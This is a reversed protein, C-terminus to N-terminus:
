RAEVPFCPQPALRACASPRRPVAKSRGSRCGPSRARRPRLLSTARRSRKGSLKRTCAKPRSQAPRFAGLQVRWEGRAIASGQRRRRSRRRSQRATRASPRRRRSKALATKTPPPAPRAPSKSTAPPPGAGQGDALRHAVGKQREELPMIEDMDALTAKAPALGQAAARSVYAYGLIPDQQCATAMSSRPASWWCPARSAPKEAAKKLWSMATSGTAARSCCCASASRPMSMARAAGRARVLEQGPRQRAPVGSGSAIPRASTSPPTPMAKKPSTAGSRSQAPM